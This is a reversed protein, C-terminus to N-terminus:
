MLAHAAGHPTIELVHAIVIGIIQIPEDQILYFFREDLFHQAPGAAVLAPGRRSQSDAAAGQALSDVPVLDLLLGRADLHRASARM